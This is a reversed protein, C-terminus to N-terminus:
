SYIYNFHQEYDEIVIGPDDPGSCTPADAHKPLRLSIITGAPLDESSITSSAIHVIGRLKKVTDVVIQFGLGTGKEGKTTVLERGMRHLVHDPIGGATDAISLLYYDDPSESADFSSIIVRCHEPRVDRDISLYADVANKVCNM